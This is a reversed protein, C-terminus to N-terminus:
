MVINFVYKVTILIKIRVQLYLIKLIEHKRQYPFPAEGM